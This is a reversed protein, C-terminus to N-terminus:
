LDKIQNELKYNAQTNENDHQLGPLKERRLQKALM